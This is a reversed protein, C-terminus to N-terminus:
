VMSRFLFILVAQLLFSSESVFIDAGGYAFISFACHVILAPPLIRIAEDNLAENM